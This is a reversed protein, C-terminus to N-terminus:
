WERALTQRPLLFCLRWRIAWSCIQRRGPHCPVSISAAM